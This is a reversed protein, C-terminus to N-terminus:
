AQTVIEIQGANIQWQPEKKEELDTREMNKKIKNETWQLGTEM